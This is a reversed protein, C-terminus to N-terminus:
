NIIKSLRGEALGSGNAAIGRGTSANANNPIKIETVV